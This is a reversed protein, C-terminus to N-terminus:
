FGYEKKLPALVAKDMTIRTATSIVELEIAHPNASKEKLFEADETFQWFLTIKKSNGSRQYEVTKQCVKEIDEEQLLSLQLRCYKTRAVFAPQLTQVKAGDVAGPSLSPAWVRKLLMRVPTIVAGLEGQLFFPVLLIATYRIRTLLDCSFDLDLEDDSEDDLFDDDQQKSPGAKDAVSLGSSGAPSLNKVPSSVVQKGNQKGSAPDVPPLSDSGEPLDAPVDALTKKSGKPPM